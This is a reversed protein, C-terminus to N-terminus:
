ISIVHKMVQPVQFRKEEGRLNQKLRQEFKEYIHKDIKLAM